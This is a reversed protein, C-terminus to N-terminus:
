RVGCGPVLEDREVGWGPTAGMGLYARPLCRVLMEPM